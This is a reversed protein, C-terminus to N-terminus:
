LITLPVSLSLTTSAEYNVINDAGLGYLSNFYTLGGGLFYGGIGVQNNRGGHVAIGETNLANAVDGFRSGPGLSVISRDESLTVETMNSMDILIGENGVGAFRPNPNHGGSRIAFKTDLSTSIIM